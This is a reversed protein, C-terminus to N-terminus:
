SGRLRASLLQLIVATANGAAHVSGLRQQEGWLEAWDSLGAAVTPVAALNGIALLQDAAHDAREDGLVDLLFASMWTGIVVDTLLPHLPRGLGTGSLLDKRISGEPVTRYVLKQVLRAASDLSGSQEIRETWRM